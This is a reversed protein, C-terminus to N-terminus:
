QSASRFGRDNQELIVAIAIALLGAMTVALVVVLKKRPFSPDNPVSASALIRADPQDFGEPGSTEKFRQLFTEFVARNANAERELAKLNVEASNLKGLDEQIQKLSQELSTVHARAIKAEGGLGQVIKEVEDRLRTQVEALEAQAKVRDPHNPGRRSSVDAARGALFVEEKRLEKILQSNLVEAASSAGRPSRLLSQVQNLRAEVGAREVRANILKENLEAAQQASMTLRNSETLGSKSRFEAVAKDSAEVQKRLEPIRQNLFTSAQGTAKLKAEVQNRIYTEAVANAVQASLVPNASTFSIRIVRSKDRAEIDLAKEFRRVAEQTARAQAVAPPVADESKEKPSILSQTWKDPLLSLPWALFRAALTRSTHVDTPGGGFEEYNGLGLSKVVEEALSPSRLVDVETQLARDDDAIGSLVSKIDVVNLQRPEIIVQASSTYRPTLNAVVIVSLIAAVAIVSLILAKRRRIIRLLEVLSVYRRPNGLRPRIDLTERKLSSLNQSLM